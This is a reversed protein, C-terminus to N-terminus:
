MEGFISEILDDGVAAMFKSGGTPPRWRIDKADLFWKGGLKDGFTPSAVNADLGRM